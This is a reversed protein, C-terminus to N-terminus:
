PRSLKDQCRGETNEGASAPLDTDADFELKHLFKCLGEISSFNIVARTHPDELSARWAPPQPSNTQWLRLLYSYYKNMM